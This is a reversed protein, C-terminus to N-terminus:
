LVIGADGEESRVLKVAIEIQPWECACEDFIAHVSPGAQPQIHVVDQIVAAASVPDEKGRVPSIRVRDGLFEALTVRVDAHDQRKLLAEAAAPHRLLRLAALLRRSKVECAPCNETPSGAM